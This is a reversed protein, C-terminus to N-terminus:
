NNLHNLGCILETTIPPTCIFNVSKHSSRHEPPHTSSIDGLSVFASFPSTYMCVYVFVCVCMYIYIYMYITRGTLYNEFILGFPRLNSIIQKRKHALFLNIKLNMSITINRFMKSVIVIHKRKWLAHLQIATHRCIDFLFYCLPFDIAMQHLNWHGFLGFHYFYAFHTEM